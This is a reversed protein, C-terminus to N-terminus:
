TWFIPLREDQGGPSFEAQDQAFLWDLEAIALERADRTSEGREMYKRTLREVDRQWASM